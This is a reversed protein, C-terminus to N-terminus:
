PRQRYTLEFHKVSWTRRLKNLATTSTNNIIKIMVENTM